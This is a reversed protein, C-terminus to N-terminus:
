HAHNPVLVPQELLITPNADKSIKLNQRSFSTICSQPCGQRSLFRESTGKIQNARHSQPENIFFPSNM